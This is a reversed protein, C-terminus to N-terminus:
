PFFLYNNMSSMVVLFCICDQFDYMSFAACNEEAQKMVEFTGLAVFWTRGRAWALM